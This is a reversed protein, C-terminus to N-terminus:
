QFERSIDYGIQAMMELAQADPVEPKLSYIEFVYKLDKSTYVPFALAGRVGVDKAHKARSFNKDITVDEVWIPKKEKWVRGPLGQGIKFSTKM